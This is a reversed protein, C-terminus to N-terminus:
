LSDESHEEILVVKGTNRACACLTDSDFPKLTAFEVVTANIGQRELEDAADLVHGHRTFGYVNRHRSAQVHM